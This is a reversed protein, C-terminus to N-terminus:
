EEVEDLADLVFEKTAVGRIDSILRDDDLIITTPSSRINFIKVLEREEWANLERYSIDPREKAIEQLTLKMPKCAVCTPTTFLFIRKM